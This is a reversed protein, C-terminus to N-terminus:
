GASPPALTGTGSITSFLVGNLALKAAAGKRPVVVAAQVQQVTRLTVYSGQAVGGANYQRDMTDIVYTYGQALEAPSLTDVEVEAASTFCLGGTRTAICVPAIHNSSYTQRRDVRDAASLVLDDRWISNFAWAASPHQGTGALNTAKLLAPYLAAPQVALTSADLAPLYGNKDPAFVPLAASSFSPSATMKWAAQSSAKQFLLAYTYKGAANTGYKTRTLAVFVAPYHSQLPVLVRLGVDKIPLYTEYGLTTSLRYDADDSVRAAGGEVTDRLATDYTKNAENVTARYAKVVALAQSPTVVAVPTKVTASTRVTAASAPGAAATVGATLLALVALAAPM